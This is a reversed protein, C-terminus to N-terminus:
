QNSTPFLWEGLEGGSLIMSQFVQYICRTLRYKDLGLLKFFM